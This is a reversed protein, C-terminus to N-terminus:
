QAAMGTQVVVRHPGDVEVLEVQFSMEDDRPLLTATFVGEIKDIETDTTLLSGAEITAVIQLRRELAEHQTWFDLESYPLRVLLKRGQETTRVDEIIAVSKQGDILIM